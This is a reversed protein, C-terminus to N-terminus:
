KMRNVRVYGVAMLCPFYLEDIPGSGDIMFAISEPTL